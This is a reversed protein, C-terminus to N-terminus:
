PTSSPFLGSCHMRQSQPPQSSQFAQIRSYNTVSCIRPTSIYRHRPHACRCALARAQLDHQHGRAAADRDSEYSLLKIMLPIPHVKVRFLETKSQADAHARASDTIITPKRLLTLVQISWSLQFISM